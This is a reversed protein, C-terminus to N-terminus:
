KNYILVFIAGQTGVPLTSRGQEAHQQNATSPAATIRCIKVAGGNTPRNCTASHPTFTMGLNLVSADLGAYFGLQVSRYVRRSRRLTVFDSFM